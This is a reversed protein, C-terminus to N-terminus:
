QARRSIATGALVNESVVEATLGYPAIIPTNGNRYEELPLVGRVQGFHDGHSHTDIVASVPREGLTRNALGLGAKATAATLLPDVVIWGTEGKILTMVALDYGRVQYNGPIVEFLGHIAAMQSQRRLSPNVINPAEGALFVFEDIDWAVSRDANLIDSELQALLGRRADLSDREDALPLQEEVAANNTVTSATAKGPTPPANGLLGVTAASLLVNAAIRKVLIM